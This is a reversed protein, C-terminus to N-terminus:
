QPLSTKNQNWTTQDNASNRAM